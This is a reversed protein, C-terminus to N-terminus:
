KKKSKSTQRVLGGCSFPKNSMYRIESEGSNTFEDLFENAWKFNIAKSNPVQENNLKLWNKLLKNAEIM